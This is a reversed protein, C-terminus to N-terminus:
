SIVTVALISQQEKKGGDEQYRSRNYEGQLHGALVRGGLALSM